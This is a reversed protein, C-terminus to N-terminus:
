IILLYKRSLRSRGSNDNGQNEIGDPALNHFFHPVLDAEQSGGKSAFSLCSSRQARTGGEM